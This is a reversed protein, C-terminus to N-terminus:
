NRANSVNIFTHVGFHIVEGQYCVVGADEFHKCDHNGIGNHRCDLLSSEHGFCHLNDLFIPGDGNRFATYEKARSVANLICFLIWPRQTSSEISVNLHCALNDAYLELKETMGSTMVCQGGPATKVFRFKDKLKPPEELFVYIEM